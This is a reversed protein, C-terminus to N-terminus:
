IHTDALNNSQSQISKSTIKITASKFKITGTTNINRYTFGQEWLPSYAFTISSDKKDQDYISPDFLLKNNRFCARLKAFFKLKVKPDIEQPLLVVENCSNQDITFSIPQYPAWDTYPPLMALGGHVKLQLQTESPTQQQKFKDENDTNINQAIAANYDSLIKQQKAKDYTAWDQETIGISQSSFPTACGCIIANLSVISALKLLKLKRM